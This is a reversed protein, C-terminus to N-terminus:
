RFSMLTVLITPRGAEHAPHDGVHPHPLRRIMRNPTSASLSRQRADEGSGNRRSFSILYLDALHGFSAARGFDFIVRGYRLWYIIVPLSCLSLSALSLFANRPGSQRARVVLLVPVTLAIFYLFSLKTLAGVSFIAAWLAGRMLAGTLSSTTPNSAEYPILLIAAFTTWAFLSDVMFATADFHAVAGAPYPGLAAFVCAGAIVLYLPQLGVRLLLFLCCAVFLATFVTLTIFCKGAADWSALPGWPLGLLTMVPPRFSVMAAGMGHVNGSWFAKNVAVSRWLCESDDWTFSYPAYNILTPTICLTFVAISLLLKWNFRMNAEMKRALGLYERSSEM